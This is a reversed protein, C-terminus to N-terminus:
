KTTFYAINNTFVGINDSYSALSKGDQDVLSKSGLVNLNYVSIESAGEISFISNQCNQPGGYASCTADYNNFFSYLGAGYVYLDTSDVVRLGWGLACNGTSGSCSSAFEPDHIATNPTFPTLANPNPQYYATETQIQGMYVNKTSAFQYQYLSSHEVSTGSLWINGETSEVNLGRGSYLTIQGGDAETQVDVDHDSVWLWCNEMYLNSASPTVHMLMYAAICNKNVDSSDTTKACQATTQQSGAFGGVRAHVDWLGAPASPSAINWQILIAGAQPGQTSLILDSLEVQGQDGAQGVQIVPKPSDMNNFFDGSSMIVPYAEGVIKSNAPIKLTNTVKYVGADMYVVKGSGAASDIVSQLAATDDTTGDGKAGGDRVSSFSSASLSEYQPKSRQYYMQGDLLGAPRSVPTIDGAVKTPGTPTYQNGQGWAAIVSSGPSGALVTGNPGEVVVGVNDLAVNELIISGATQPASSDTKASKIAVPTNAFSSDFLTISGVSQQESGGTSIDIGLQCNNITIGQYTWGWNWFHSIATVANNFTLNRMTFQQNGLAAGIKGGNFVLDGAFGASGSECFIGQHETGQDASLQFVINQLSTAQATPWHIGSIQTGAAVATTDLVFNRVQRWFVTTAPWNPDASFYPDGDILYGGKFGSSAKIVPLSNPNGIIITNYYDFIPASIVYSGSPFYVVAPTTTSSFCGQGCRTGSSIANNIAETDDTVGDGKAGFDKVNRFVTYESPGMPSIGQHKISEMWFEPGDRAVIKVDSFGRSALDSGYHYGDHRGQLADIASEAVPIAGAPSLSGLLLSLPLLSSIHM